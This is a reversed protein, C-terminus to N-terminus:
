KQATGCPVVADIITYMIDSVGEQQQQLQPQPM